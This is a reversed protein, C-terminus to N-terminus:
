YVSFSPTAKNMDLIICWIDADKNMDLLRMRRSFVVDYWDMHVVYFLVADPCFIPVPTCLVEMASRRRMVGYWINGYAEKPLM